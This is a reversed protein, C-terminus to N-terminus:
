PQLSRLAAWRPDTHDPVCDCGADNLDTGCEPCLGACDPRCLPAAPLEILVVDRVMQEMDIVDHELPYTEGELPEPEFLEDFHVELDGAVPRLCRGCASQWRTRATGRAVIGDNIRELGADVEVPVGPPVTVIGAALGELPEALSVARRRGRRRLLDAVVIRFGASVPM